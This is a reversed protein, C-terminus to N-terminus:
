RMLESYDTILLKCKDCWLPSPWTDCFPSGFSDPPLLVAKKKELIKNSILKPHKEGEPLFFSDGRGNLTGKKMECNCKPCRM